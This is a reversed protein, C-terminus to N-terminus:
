QVELATLTAYDKLPVFDLLLKAQPDPELGTFQKVLPHNDGAEQFLDFRRLVSLVSPNGLFRNLNPAQSYLRHQGRYCFPLGPYHPAAHYEWDQYYRHNATTLHSGL